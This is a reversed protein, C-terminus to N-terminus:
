HDGHGPQLLDHHPNGEPTLLEYLGEKTLTFILRDSINSLAYWAQNKKVM